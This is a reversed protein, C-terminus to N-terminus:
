DEKTINFGKWYSPHYSTYINKFNNTKLFKTVNDQLDSTCANIILEPKYKDMREKFENKIKEEKWIKKWCRNRLTKYKGKLKNNHYMYLSTQYQIPNSIILKYKNEENSFLDKELEKLERLVTLINMDILRGTEGQAPAIAFRNSDFEDSHPSELLLVINKYEEREKTSRDKYNSKGFVELDQELEKKYLKTKDGFILYRYVDNVKSLNLNLNKMKTFKRIKSAVDKDIDLAINLGNDLNLNISTYKTKKTKNKSM